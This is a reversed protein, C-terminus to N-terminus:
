EAPSRPSPRGTRAAPPPAPPPSSARSRPSSPRASTPTHRTSSAACRRLALCLVPRRRTSQPFRTSAGVRSPPRPPSLSAGGSCGLHRWGQAQGRRDGCCDRLRVARSSRAGNVFTAGKQETSMSIVFTRLLSAAPHGRAKSTNTTKLERLLAERGEETISRLKKVLTTNRKISSDRQKLSDEDAFPCVCPMLLAAVFQVPCAPTM